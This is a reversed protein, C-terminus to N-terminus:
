WLISVFSPEPMPPLGSVFRRAPFNTAIDLFDSLLVCFLGASAPSPQTEGLLKGGSSRLGAVHPEILSVPVPMRRCAEVSRRAAFNTETNFIRRVAPFAIGSGVENSSIPARSATVRSASPRVCVSISRRIPEARLPTLGEVKVLGAALANRGM